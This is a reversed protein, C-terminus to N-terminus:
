NRHALLGHNVHAAVGLPHCRGHTSLDLSNQGLRIRLDRELPPGACLTLFCLTQQNHPLCDSMQQMHGTTCLPGHNRHALQAGSQLRCIM